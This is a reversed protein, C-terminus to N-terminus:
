RRFFDIWQLFVTNPDGDFLADPLVVEFHGNELPIVRRGPQNINEIQLRIWFPSVEELSSGKRGGDPFFECLQKYPPHSLVSTDIVFKGNNVSMSELGHLHLRLILPKRWRGDVPSIEARGIGSTSHVDVVTRGGKISAVISDGSKDAGTLRISLVADGGTRSAM